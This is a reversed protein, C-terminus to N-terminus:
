IYVQVSVQGGTVLRTYIQHLIQILFDWVLLHILFCCIQWQSLWFETIKDIQKNKKTAVDHQDFYNVSVTNAGIYM